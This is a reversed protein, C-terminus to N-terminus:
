GMGVGLELGLGLGLGMGLGLGLGRVGVGIRVRVTIPPPVLPFNGQYTDSRSCIKSRKEGVQFVKLSFRQLLSPYVTCSTGHSVDLSQKPPATACGPLRECPHGEFLSTIVSSKDTQRPFM